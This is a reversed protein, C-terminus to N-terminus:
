VRGERIARRRGTSLAACLIIGAIFGGIHAENAVGASAFGFYLSLVLMVALQALSIGAVQGGCYIVLFLMAGIVAFVAGSAGVCVVNAGSKMRWLHMATGAAIGGALYLAAYRVSGLLRELVSGLVFLLLMNNFLHRIGSHLFMATFIRWYAGGSVLETEYAGFAVLVSSDLTSGGFIEVVFFVIVNVAIVATTVKPLRRLSYYDM